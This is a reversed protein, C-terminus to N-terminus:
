SGAPFGGVATQLSTFEQVIWNGAGTILTVAGVTILGVLLAYELLAAGKEDAMLNKYALYLRSM